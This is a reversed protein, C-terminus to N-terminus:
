KVAGLFVDRDLARFMRLVRKDAATLEAALADYVRQSIRGQVRGLALAHRLEPDKVWAMAVRLVHDFEQPMRNM